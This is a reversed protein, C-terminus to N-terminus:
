PLELAESRRRPAGLSAHSDNASPLLPGKKRSSCQSWTLPVWLMHQHSRFATKVATEIPLPVIVVLNLVEYFNENESHPFWPVSISIKERKGRIPSPFFVRASGRLTDSHRYLLFSSKYWSCLLWASSKRLGLRWTRPFWSLPCQRGHPGAPTFPCSVPSDSAVSGLQIRPGPPRRIQTGQESSTEWTAKTLFFGGAICSVCSVLNSGQTPFIGQLLFHCGSWYEQRSFGLPLPAQLAVPWPTM